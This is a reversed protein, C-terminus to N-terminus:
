SINIPVVLGGGFIFFATALVTGTVVVEARIFKKANELNFDIFELAGNGTIQATAVVNGENDVLDAYPDSGADDTSDQVTVDLTTIAGAGSIVVLVCSEAGEEGAPMRDIGTGNVTANTLSQPTMGIGESVHAGIDQSPQVM